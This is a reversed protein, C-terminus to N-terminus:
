ESKYDVYHSNGKKEEYYKIIGVEKIRKNGELWKNIVRDEFINKNVKDCPFM